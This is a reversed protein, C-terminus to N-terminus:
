TEEMRQSEDLWHCEKFDVSLVVKVDVAKLEEFHVCFLAAVSSKRIVKKSGEQKQPFLLHM